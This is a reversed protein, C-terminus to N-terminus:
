NIKISYSYKRNFSEVETIPNNVQSNSTVTYAIKPMPLKFRVTFRHTTKLRIGHNKAGGYHLSKILRVAEEDCGFGIGKLITVNDVHGSGDIEASLYVLGEVKKVLAENPYVLNEAIFKMFAKKGGAIEPKKLFKNSKNM